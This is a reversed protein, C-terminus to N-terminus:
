LCNYQFCNNTLIKQNNILLLDTNDPFKENPTIIIWLFFNEITINILLSKIKIEFLSFNKM